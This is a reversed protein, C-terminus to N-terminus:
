GGTTAEASTSTTTESGSAGGTPQFYIEAKIEVNLLAEVSPNSTTAEGVAEPLQISCTHAQDVQSVRCYNLDTVTVLRALNRTRLLFDQMQDYTGKFNM